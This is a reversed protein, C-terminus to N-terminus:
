PQYYGAPLSGKDCNPTSHSSVNPMSPSQQRGQQAVNSTDDGEGQGYVRIPNRGQELDMVYDENCTKPHLLAKISPWMLLKHAATTHRPPISLGRDYEDKCDEATDPKQHFMLQAKKKAQAALFHSPSNEQMFQIMKECIRNEMQQM